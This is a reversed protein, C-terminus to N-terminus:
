ADTLVRQYIEVLRGAITENDLGDAIIKERGNTRGKFNLAQRLLGALEQPDRSQAVYCGAVGEVRERVDGVDVSVIPCGCAMAEKVVQPSGESVSTLLLADAACMLLMVQERTYDKLELLEAKFNLSKIVEHALSANKVANDFAGAFLVYKGEPQLKMQERAQMRDTMQLDTIGIGCPLLSCYRKQRSIQLTRQSVFINWSSLWMAIRSLRRVGTNNIDSGHYTTVVSVQRQMNALLGSLGYHAHIIDPNYRRIAKRLAPLCHLYGWLGRGQVGFWEVTVGARQLAATQEVVFPAFQGPKNNAVILVKM